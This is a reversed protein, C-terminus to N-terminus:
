TYGLIYQLPERRCRRQIWETLRDPRNEKLLWRADIEPDPVGAARLLKALDTM